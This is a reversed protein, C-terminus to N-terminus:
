KVQVFEIKDIWVGQIASKGDKGFRGPGFWVFEHQNPVWTCIDYWAYEPGVVSTKPQIGGRGVRAVPDYVGAWFAEGDGAKECRLRVRVTYKKGPEFEVRSTSMQACWEFHSNHLKLAKGDSAKPDDVFSGWTGLRSCSIFSEQLEGRTAGPTFTPEKKALLNRWANQLERHRDGSEALRIDKAEAMRDLLSKALRKEVALLSQDVPRSSLWLAKDGKRRLRELRMYDVGFAGMRVNYSTAPDDKVAAIAQSWLGAAKELFADPIAPNEPGVWIILPKNSPTSYAVQLAHLEDFYQRVFPAGKGYYGNFFDQLLPEAPLDPNWAWKAILWAKLEAFDGHRGQYAGQEFIERVKNARFFKLNGQLTLVNAFPMVYNPFDTVYDWVYLQDTQKAWGEIDARFKVNQGFDSEDLPRAFDCEITCLCPVVNHRLKTKKPPKRTYQYALTEIIADPFEKEVREAVANVFRIMTGAHSEEEDDVAKCKPCECYNYWDNQSVGYFKAGPDKRIRALVRETVIRLVDPNTLCLQTRGNQRVGNIESFYEPHADFFEKAPMLTEFTHCSGLGGGFRFPSGGYKEENSRWSRSNVKNRAAFDGHGLVDFWFPERMAFAPIQVDCLDNPVSVRDKVPVVTHWSAYWRCGAYRELLEYVGYLAGRKRSGFVFFRSGKAELIFGDEGLKEALGPTMNAPSSFRTEGVVVAKAPLNAEDTAIPLTVGTAKALFDRLEEAAYVESPSAKAARVIVYSAPKGREALVLEGAGAGVVVLAGVVAILKRM